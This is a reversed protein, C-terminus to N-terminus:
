SKESDSFSRDVFAELSSLSLVLFGLEERGVDFVEWWAIEEDVLPFELERAALYIAAVALAHPQHTLHLFQPSLLASNLRALVRAALTQSSSSLAQLYTLALNYALCVKTDFALAVLIQKEKMFLQDRRVQYTGESVYHDKVPPATESLRIPSGSKNVFDLLSNTSSALLGYVNIVSRPALPYLSQKAALFICAASAVVNQSEASFSIDDLNNDAATTIYRQLLIISVAIIEQPLRLLVGAVQTLLSVKFLAVDALDRSEHKRFYALLNRSSILPNILPSLDNNLAM